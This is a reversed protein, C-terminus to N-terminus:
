AITMPSAVNRQRRWMLFMAGLGLGLMLLTSPEPTTVVLFEQPPASQCPATANGPTPCAAGTDYSYISINAWTSSGYNSEAQQVYWQVTGSNPSSTTGEFNTYNTGTGLKGQLYPIVGPDSTTGTPDSLQWIAFQIADDTNASNAPNILLTALYAMEDYLVPNNGWKLNPDSSLTAVTGEYATWTEPVYSNDAFDDCIVPTVIGTTSGSQTITATYPGIYVSSDWVNGGASTLDMSATQDARTVPASCMAIVAIALGLGLKWTLRKMERNTGLAVPAEDLGEATQRGIPICLESSVCM